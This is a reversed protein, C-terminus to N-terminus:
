KLNLINLRKIVEKKMTEMGCSLYDRLNFMSKDKLANRVGTTFSIRFDTDMNVKCIGNQIASVLNEQSVGKASGIEGGSLKFNNLLDKDVMSAGHLVLPINTLSSIQKLREIDLFSEGDFKYAGHSTGISIALSDVNTQDVFLKAENPNTFHSSISNVEDEVGKLAGLEAEVSVNFKHAYEVVKKTLKVNEEFSLSSADIMVNTFGYDVCSKCIEFNKGHDLNLCVDINVNETENKVLSVINKLGMYKIASESAQVIVPYNLENATSIICKLQELNTFNFAGVARKEKKAKELIYKGNVLAM